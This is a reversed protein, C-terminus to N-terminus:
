NLAMDPMKDKGLSAIFKDLTNVSAIRRVTDRFVGGNGAGIPDSVAAFASADPSQQM